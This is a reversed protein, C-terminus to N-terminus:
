AMTNRFNEICLVRKSIMWHFKKRVRQIKGVMSVEGKGKKVNVFVRCM